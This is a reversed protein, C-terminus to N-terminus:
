VISSIQHSAEQKLQLVAVDDKLEEKMIFCCMRTRQTLM